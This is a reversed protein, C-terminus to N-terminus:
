IIDLGMMADIIFVCANVIALWGKLVGSTIRDPFKDLSFRTYGFHQLTYYGSVLFLVAGLIVWILDQRYHGVLRQLLKRQKRSQPRDDEILHATPSNQM